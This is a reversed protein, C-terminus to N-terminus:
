HVRTKLISFYIPILFSHTKGSGTESKVIINENKLAKPIVVKQVETPETYGLKELAVVLDEKLNFSSFKM